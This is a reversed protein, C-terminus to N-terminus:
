PPLWFFSPPWSKGAEGRQPISQPPQQLFLTSLVPLKPCHTLPGPPVRATPKPLDRREAEEETEEETFHTCENGTAWTVVGSLSLAKFCCM